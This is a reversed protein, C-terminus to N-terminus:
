PKIVKTAKYNEYWESSAAFAWYGAFAILFNVGITKLANGKAPSGSTNTAPASM